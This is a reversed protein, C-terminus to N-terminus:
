VAFPLLMQTEENEGYKKHLKQMKKEEEFYAYLHMLDYRVGLNDNNCLRILEEAQAVAKRLMGTETLGLFYDYCVRMYPRTEFILWFEGVEDFYNKERLQNEAKKMLKELESLKEEAAQDSVSIKEHLADINDPEIELAKNLYELTKKKNPASEALDLYYDVSEPDYLNEGNRVSENYKETFSNILEQVEESTLKDAGSKEIFEHMEKMYKETEKSM